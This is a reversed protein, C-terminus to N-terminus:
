ESLLFRVGDRAEKADGVIARRRELRGRRDERTVHRGHDPLGGVAVALDDRHAPAEHEQLLPPRRPRHGVHAVVRDQLAAEPLRRKLLPAAQHRCGREAFGIAIHLWRRPM